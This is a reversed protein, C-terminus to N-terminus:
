SIMKEGGGGLLRLKEMEGSITNKCEVTTGGKIYEKSINESMEM